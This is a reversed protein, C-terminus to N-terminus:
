RDFIYRNNILDAKELDTLQKWKVICHAVARGELYRNTTIIWTVLDSTYSKSEGITPHPDLSSISDVLTAKISEAEQELEELTRNLPNYILKSM